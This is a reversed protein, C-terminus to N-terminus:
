QTRLILCLTATQAQTRARARTAMARARTTARARAKTRARAKRVTLMAGVKEQHQGGFVIELAENFLQAMEEDIGEDLESTGKGKNDAKGQGKGEARSQGLILLRPRPPAVGAINKGTAQGKGKGHQGKGKNDDDKGKFIGKGKEYPGSRHM